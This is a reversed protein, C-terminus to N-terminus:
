CTAGDIVLLILLCNAIKVNHKGLPYFESLATALDIVVLGCVGDCVRGRSLASEGDPSQADPRIYGARFTYGGDAQEGARRRASIDATSEPELLSDCYRTKELEQLLLMQNVRRCIASIGGIVQDHVAKHECIDEQRYRCHFFTDVAEEAVRLILWFAPLLIHEAREADLAADQESDSNDGDGEYGEETLHVNDELRYSSDSNRGAAREEAGTFNMESRVEAASRCRRTELPGGGGGAPECVQSRPRRRPQGGPPQVFLAAVERDERSLAAESSTPRHSMSRRLRRPAPRQHNEATCEDTDSVSGPSAAHQCLDVSTSRALLAQALLADPTCPRLVAVAQEAAFVPPELPPSFRASHRLPGLPPVLSWTLPQCTSSEHVLYYLNDLQALKYGPVQLRRFEDMFKDMSKDPGFVFYLPIPKHVCGRRSRSGQIQGASRRVHDAVTTLVALQPPFSDLLLAAIEDTLLWQVEAKTVTVAQLQFESLHGLQAGLQSANFSEQESSVDSGCAGLEVVESSGLGDSCFSTARVQHKTHESIRADVQYPLTLCLIDLTVQVSDLPIESETMEGALEGICTPLDWIHRTYTNSGTRTTCTLQLFLPPMNEEEKDDGVEVAREDMDGVSESDVNSLLSTKTVVSFIEEPHQHVDRWIDSADIDNLQVTGTDNDASPVREPYDDPLATDDDLTTRLGPPLYFYVHPSAPALGFSARLIRAFKGRVEAHVKQLRSCPQHSSLLSLPLRPETDAPHRRQQETSRVTFDRIHGCITQPLSLSPRRTLASVFLVYVPVSIPPLHYM